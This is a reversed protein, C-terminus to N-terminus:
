LVSFLLKHFWCVILCFLSVGFVRSPNRNSNFYFDFQTHPETLAPFPEANWVQCGGLPGAPAVADQAKAGTEEAELEEEQEEEEKWRNRETNNPKLDWKLIKQKSVCKRLWGADSPSGRLSHVGAGAIITKVSHGAKAAAQSHGVGWSRAPELFATPAWKWAWRWAGPVPVENWVYHTKLKDERTLLEFLNNKFVIAFINLCLTFKFYSKKGCVRFGGTWCM